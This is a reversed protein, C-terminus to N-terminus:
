ILWRWTFNLFFNRSTKLGWNLSNKSTLPGILRTISKILGNQHRLIADEPSIKLFDGKRFIVKPFPRFSELKPFKQEFLDIKQSLSVTDIDLYTM